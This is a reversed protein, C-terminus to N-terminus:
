FNQQALVAVLLSSDTCRRYNEIQAPPIGLAALEDPGPALYSNVCRIADENSNMAEKLVPFFFTAFGTSHDELMNRVTKLDFARGTNDCAFNITGKKKRRKKGPKKTAM